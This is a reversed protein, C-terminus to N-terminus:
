KTAPKAAQQQAQLNSLYEYAMQGHLSRIYIVWGGLCLAVVLGLGAVVAGGKLMWGREDKTPWRM